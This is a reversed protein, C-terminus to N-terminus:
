EKVAEKVFQLNECVRCGTKELRDRCNHGRCVLVCDCGIAKATEADHLTDGIFLVECPDFGKKSMWKKATEIKSSGLVNGSGLIDTFYHELEFYAVQKILYNQETASIIVQEKGSHKIFRLVDRADDFVEAQPYNDNFLAAYSRAILTFDEKELDFGVKRYFDIVPFDFERLYYERSELLKKGREELLTNVIEMNLRVDDLLTGNWDWIICKYTKM